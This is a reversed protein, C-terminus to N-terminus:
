NYTKNAKTNKNAHTHTHTHWTKNEGCFAQSDMFFQDIWPCHKSKKILGLDHNWNGSPWNAKSQAEKQLWMSSGLCWMFATAWPISPHPSLCIILALGCSCTLSITLWLSGSTNAILVGWTTRQRWTFWKKIKEPNPGQLFREPETERLWYVLNNWCEDEKSSSYVGPVWNTGNSQTKQIYQM